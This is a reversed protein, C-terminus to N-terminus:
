TTSIVRAMLKRGRARDPQGYASVLDQYFEWTVQLAVYDDDTDWLLDLRQRVCERVVDLTAGAEKPTGPGPSILVSDFGSIDDPLADNRVVTPRAGLQELYGVITYVFSDYNDVILIKSM